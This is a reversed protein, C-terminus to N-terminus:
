SRGGDSERRQTERWLRFLVPLDDVLYRRALRRPESRLRFAWELGSRQAWAPARRIDGAIYNFSGGIGACVADLLEAHDRIWFDQKPCGFGVFVFTPRADCVMRAIRADDEASIGAGPASVGALAFDGMTERLRAAARQAVGEAGGLFYLSSGHEQSHRVAMAILDLGTVRSPVRHGALRLAWLVPAGDAVVLDATRVLERFVPDRRGIALFDTNVTVAQHHRGDAALRALEEEAEAPGVTDVPMGFLWARSRAPALEQREAIAM